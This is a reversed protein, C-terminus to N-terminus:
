HSSHRSPVDDPAEPAIGPIPVQPIADAGPALLRSRDELVFMAILRFPLSPRGEAVQTLSARLLLECLPQLAGLARVIGMKAILCVEIDRGDEVLLFIIFFRQHERAPAWFLASPPQLAGRLFPVGPLM